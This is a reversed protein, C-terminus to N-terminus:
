LHLIVGASFDFAPKLQATPYYFTAIGGGSFSMRVSLDPSLYYNLQVSGGFLVGVNEYTKTGSLQRITLRPELLAGLWIDTNAFHFKNGVGVRLGMEHIVHPIEDTNLFTFQYRLGVRVINRLDMALTLGIGHIGLSGLPTYDLLMGVGFMSPRSGRGRIGQKTGVFKWKVSSSKILYRQRAKITAYHVAVWGKRRLQIEYKGSRVGVVVRRNAEKAFEHIIEHRQLLFCHGKIGREFAVRASAQAVKTLIVSDKGRLEWLFVPRQVPVNHKTSHVVTQRKTYQYVENLTVEQNNNSDAAGRLGALLSSTFFSSRLQNSEYSQENEGSSALLALGEVRPGQSQQWDSIDVVAAGKGSARREKGKALTLQGSYCSDVIMLRLGAPLKKITGMLDSFMYKDDGLQFHTPKSHGSYYFLFTVKEKPLKAFKRQFDLLTKKLTKRTPRLLVKIHGKRFEGLEKLLGAVRRADKEAFRLTPLGKGKNHGIILAFKYKASAWASAVPVSWMLLVVCLVGWLRWGVRIYM